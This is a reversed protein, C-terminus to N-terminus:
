RKQLDALSKLRNLIDSVSDSTPPKNMDMGGMLNPMGYHQQPQQQMQQPQQHSPRGGMLNM